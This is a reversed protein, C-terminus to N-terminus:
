CNPRVAHHRTESQFVCELLRLMSYLICLRVKVVEAEPLQQEKKKTKVTALVEEVPLPPDQAIAETLTTKLDELYLETVKKKNYEVIPALKAAQAATYM